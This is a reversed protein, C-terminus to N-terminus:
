LLRTVNIGLSIIGYPLSNAFLEWNKKLDPITLIWSKTVSPCSTLYTQMRGKPVLLYSSGVWFSLSLLFTIQSKETMAAQRIQWGVQGRKLFCKNVLFQQVPDLHHDGHHLLRGPVIALILRKASFARFQKCLLQSIVKRFLLKGRFRLLYHQSPIM